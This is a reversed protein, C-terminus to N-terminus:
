RKDSGEAARRAAGLRDYEYVAEVFRRHERILGRGDTGFYSPGEDPKEDRSIATGRCMLCIEPPANWIVPGGCRTCWPDYEVPQVVRRKRTM